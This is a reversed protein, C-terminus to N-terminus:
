IGGKRELAEKLLNVYKLYKKPLNKWKPYIRSYSRGFGGPVYNEGFYTETGWDTPDSMKQYYTLIIPENRLYILIQAIQHDKYGQRPGLITIQPQNLREVLENYIWLYSYTNTQRYKWNRSVM